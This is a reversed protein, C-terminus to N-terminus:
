RGPVRCCIAYFQYSQTSGTNNTVSSFWGNNAVDQFTPASANIISGANGSLGVAEVGGAVVQYGTACIMEQTQRSGNTVNAIVTTAQTCDLPTADPRTFVGMIDVVIDTPSGFFEIENPNGVAQLTTVVAANSAQVQPGAQYWNVLATSNSSGPPRAGIFGPAATPGVIAVNMSVAAIDDANTVGSLTVPNCAASGGNPGGDGSLTYDRSGNIPGGLFRTDIFRCPVIPRYVLDTSPDGIAKTSIKAVRSAQDATARFSGAPAMQMVQENTMRLLQEILWRRQDGSVAGVAADGATAQMIRDIRALKDALRARQEATISPRAIVGPAVNEIAVAAAEKVSAFPAAHVAPATLVLGAALGALLTNRM